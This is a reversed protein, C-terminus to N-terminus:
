AAEEHMKEKKVKVKVTEEGPVLEITINECTYTKRGHKKMLGLLGTKKEVEEGMLKMRDDRIAAYDLAAEELEPIDAMNEMGPLEEQKKRAAM